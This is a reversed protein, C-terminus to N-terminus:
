IEFVLVNNQPTVIYDPVKTETIEVKAGGGDCRMIERKWQRRSRLRKNVLMEGDGISDREELSDFEDTRHFQKNTSIWGFEGGIFGKGGDRLSSCINSIAQEWREDEVIHFMVGIANVIDYESLDIDPSSVDGHLISVKDNERYQSRLASIAEDSIEIGTVSASERDLWFDIWHGAGSGIDLVDCERPDIEARILESIIANEVANYHFTTELDYGDQITITVEDSVGGGARYHSNFFQRPNYSQNANRSRILYNYVPVARRRIPAPLKSGVSRIIDNIMLDYISKGIFVDRM